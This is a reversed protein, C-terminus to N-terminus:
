RDPPSGSKPEETAETATEAPKNKISRVTAFLAIFPACFGLGLGVIKAGQIARSATDGETGVIAGATAFIFAGIIPGILFWTIMTRLFQGSWDGTPQDDPNM